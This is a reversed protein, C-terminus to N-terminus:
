GHRKLNRGALRTQRWFAASYGWNEYAQNLVATNQVKWPSEVQLTTEIIWIQGMINTQVGDQDLYRLGFRTVGPASGVILSGVGPTAIKRYLIRDKPNPSSTIYKGLYWDVTDTIDNDDLDSLFRIHTTDAHIIVTTPDEINYGMKRLDYELSEVLSVLSEQVIVDSNYSQNSNTINSNLSLGMLLVLGAIMTSGILDLMVSM